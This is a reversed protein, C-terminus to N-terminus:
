QVVPKCMARDFDAMAQEMWAVRAYLTGRNAYAAAFEPAIEIAKNYNDIAEQFKLLGAYAAGRGNYAESYSSDLEIARDFEAIAQEYGENKLYEEGRRFCEEAETVPSLASCASVFAAIIIIELIVKRM